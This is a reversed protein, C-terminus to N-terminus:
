GKQILDIAKDVVKRCSHKPISVIFSDDLGSETGYVDVFAEVLIGGGQPRIKIYKRAMFFGTGKKYVGAEGKRKNPFFRQKKLFLNLKTMIQSVDTPCHVTQSFRPVAKAKKKM